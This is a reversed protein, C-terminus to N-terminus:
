QVDTWTEHGKCTYWFTGSETKAPTTNLNRMSALDRKCADATQYPTNSMIECRTGNSGNITMCLFIAYIM